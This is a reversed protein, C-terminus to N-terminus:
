IVFKCQVYPDGQPYESPCYCEPENHGLIRCGANQGCKMKACANVQREGCLCSRKPDGVCGVECSCEYGGNSSEKCVANDGCPNRLCAGPTVQQCEVLPNGAHGPPCSCHSKRNIVRCQANVGCTGFELCPNKCSGDKCRKDAECDADKQCEFLSCEQSPEGRYGDSCMCLVRHDSVRCMADKGCAGDRLCPNLCQGNVCSNDNPCDSNSRCGAVCAGGKCLQGPPCAGPNCRSRCKGNSCTQGCACQSDDNCTEACFVGFEDCQCYSNCRQLPQQCGSLANGQYGNKCSCQVGHNVVSCEACEGCQGSVSCPDKCQHDICALDSSCSADSRCGAKCVRNECILGDACSADSNCIARCTGRICREDALCNLDSFFSLIDNLEDRQLSYEEM